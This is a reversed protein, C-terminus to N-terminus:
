KQQVIPEIITSIYILSHKTRFPMIRYTYNNNHLEFVLYSQSETQVILHHFASFLNQSTGYDGLKITQKVENSDHLKFHFNAIQKNLTKADLIKRWKGIAKKIMFTPNYWKIQEKGIPIVINEKLEEELIIKYERAEEEIGRFKM